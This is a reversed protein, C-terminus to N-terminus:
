NGRFNKDLVQDTTKSNAEAMALFEKLPEFLYRFRVLMLIQVFSHCLKVSKLAPPKLTVM